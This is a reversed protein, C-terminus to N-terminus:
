NGTRQTGRKTWYRVLGRWNFELPGVHELPREDSDTVGSAHVYAEVERKFQAYKEEDSAERDMARRAMEAVDTLSKELHALHAPVDGYPGFHTIFVTQPQWARLKALSERWAELDIDPPPTPPLTFVISPTFRLGATDGAWALGESGDFYSVHHSAHGPTYQVDFARRAAQIREGGRLVVLNPEPVPLLAGWLKRVGEVGWLQNASNVLKSPDVMHPAGKEHVFVKIRPNDRVLLGTAGAHDLHIHTVLISEIDRVGIGLAALDSKLREICSGPGPDVLAVGADSTYVGTAIAKPTECFNLDIYSIDRAISPM